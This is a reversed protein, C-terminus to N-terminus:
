ESHTIILNGFRDVVLSDNKLLLITTDKRVIIAPGPVSNGHILFEGQFLPILEPKDSLFVEREELYAQDPRDNGLPLPTITPAEIKGIARLRINVLEVEAEPRSYGYVDHHTRHFNALYDDSFPINLEFSQGLYRLDLTRKLNINESAFGENHMDQHGKQEIESFVDLIRTTPTEGPLMVTLSYDKIVDASLMGFASLTSALPPIIVKPIGLQRALDNAHLGGAGGFSLLAFDEPDYGREISVLRIARVMHANIVDVVGLAAGIQDQGIKEGLNRMVEQARSRDLHFEGGLFHDVPLRGLVVNADTVTPLDHEQGGHSYCAPGPDAGASEPGVRLAGGEDVKAISGGGAGITHIDLVPIKIPYDGVISETTVVPVGEVLSVDTSTGGMDFTILSLNSSAELGSYQNEWDLQAMSGIHSAAVVGGAPGSLICRVGSQRAERLSIIGGNSQMIRLHFSGAVNSISEELVGLYRDLVPTVYANIVTTSTREFERYEPLIENSVSVFYGACRLKDAVVNEHEPTNFSFLLCVAIAELNEDDIKTILESLEELDLPILIEGLHNVREHVEFRLERPILQPRSKVSLTYLEPRDQRGIELVDRFGKTTVLATRSGKRELLANTAVTSGHTIVVESPKLEYDDLIDKLGDLVAQAPNEPTSLRKSTILEGNAPNYIVFDTFTGGIDVGIKLVQHAEGTNAM